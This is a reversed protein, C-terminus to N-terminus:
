LMGDNWNGFQPALNLIECFNEFFVISMLPCKM